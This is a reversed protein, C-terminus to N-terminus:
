FAGSHAVLGIALVILHVCNASFFGDSHVISPKFTNLSIFNVINSRSNTTTRNKSIMQFIKYGDLTKKDLSSKTNEM